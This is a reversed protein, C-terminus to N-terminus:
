KAFDYRTCVARWLQEIRRSQGPALAIYSRGSPSAAFDERYIPFGVFGVPGSARVGDESIPYDHLIWGLQDATVTATTTPEFESHDDCLWEIGHQITIKRMFNFPLREGFLVM